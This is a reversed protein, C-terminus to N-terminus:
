PPLGSGRPGSVQWIASYGDDYIRKAKGSEALINQQVPWEDSNWKTVFVYDIKNELLNETLKSLDGVKRKAWWTTSKPDRLWRLHLHEYSSGDANVRRPVLQLWRGFIPYYQYATPGFWSVRSGKPLMELAAWGAGIPRVEDGYNYIRGDTLQKQHSRCLALGILGAALCMLLVLRRAPILFFLRRLKDWSYLICGGGALVAANFAANVSSSGGWPLVAGVVALICFLRGRRGRGAILQSFLVMGIAFPPILYRREVFLKADPANFTGSFPTLPYLALLILGATLLASKAFFEQRNTSFKRGLASGIAAAYGMACLIFLGFPWRIVKSLIYKWQQLDAPSAVIWSILETRYQQESGLPGAFPGFEAPFVPNGTLFLNRLYWYGSMAAGGVVFIAVMALRSSLKLSKREGVILWLFIIIAAPALSMKCGTALGALLGCYGADVVRRRGSTEGLSPVAFAVAALVTAAGAVDVAAFSKAWGRIMTSCLLLVGTLLAISKSYGQGSCLVAAAVVLLILWYLGALSVYADSRLPLMFWLSLIETNFPYYAHYGFPALSLRGETLWRAVPPAHYSLDDHKFYVGHLFFRGALLGMLGALLVLCMTYEIKQTTGYESKTLTEHAIQGAKSRCRWRAIGLVSATAGLLVMASVATLKGVSGLILVVSVVIVPFGATVALVRRWAERGKMFVEAALFAVLVALLNNVVFILEGM